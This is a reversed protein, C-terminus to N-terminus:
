SQSDTETKYILENTDNYKENKSWQVCVQLLILQAGVIYLTGSLWLIFVVTGELLKCDLASYLLSM